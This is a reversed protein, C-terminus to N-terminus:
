AFGHCVKAVLSSTPIWHRDVNVIRSDHETAFWTKVQRCVRNSLKMSKASLDSYMAAPKM